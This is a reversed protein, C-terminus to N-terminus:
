CGPPSPQLTVTVVTGGERDIEVNATGGHASVLEGVLWLGVGMRPRGRDTTARQHFSEVFSRAPVDSGADRVTLRLSGEIRGATVSVPPAGHQLANTVLNQLIQELAGADWWDVLDGASVDVEIGAAEAPRAVRAVVDAVVRGADVQTPQVLLRGARHYDLLKGLMRDLRDIEGHAGLLGEKLAPTVNSGLENEILHLYLLTTALPTRIHHALSAALDEISPPSPRRRARSTADGELNPGTRSRRVCCM